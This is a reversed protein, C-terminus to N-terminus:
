RTWKVNGMDDHGVGLRAAADDGVDEFLGGAAQLAPITNEYSDGPVGVVQSPSISPAKERELTMAPLQLNLVRAFLEARERELRNVHQTLWEFSSQLQSLQSTLSLEMAHQEHVVERLEAVTENAKKLQAAVTDAASAKMGRELLERYEARTIFM